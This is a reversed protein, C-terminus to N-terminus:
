AAPEHVVQYQSRPLESRLLEYGKQVSQKFRDLEDRTWRDDSDSPAAWDLSTDYWAVLYQLWRKTNESLPLEWHNVPYGFKERASANSAWLCVGSGGDFRLRIEYM